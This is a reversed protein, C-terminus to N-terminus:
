NMGLFLLQHEFVKAIIYRPQSSLKEVFSVLVRAITAGIDLSTAEDSGTILKRSTMALVDQGRTIEREAAVLTQTLTEEASSPSDLLKEVDMTITTLKAGRGSILCELQATTKPVYSGAIILGGVSSSISLTSASIPPIPSIGLRASVFAAGTRFLFRRGREAALFWSILCSGTASNLPHM